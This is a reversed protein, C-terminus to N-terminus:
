QTVWKPDRAFVQLGTRAPVILPWSIRNGSEDVVDCSSLKLAVCPFSLNTNSPNIVHITQNNPTAFEISSVRSVSANRHFAESGVSSRIDLIGADSSKALFFHEIDVRQGAGVTVAPLSLGYNDWPSVARRIFARRTDGTSGGIATMRFVYLNQGATSNMQFSRSMLQDNASSTVTRGCTGGGCAAFTGMSFSSGQAAPDFYTTWGDTISPNFGGNSLLNSEVNAVFDRYVVRSVTNDTSAYQKWAAKQLIRGSSWTAFGWSAEANKQTTLITNGQVVAGNKTFFIAPDSGHFWYFAHVFDSDAPLGNSMAMSKSSVLSNNLYQNGQTLGNDSRTQLTRISAFSVNRITNGRIINFSANHMAVGIEVDSITNGQVTVGSSMDDLYVGTALNKCTLGCGELNSRSTVIVNNRVTGRAVYATQPPTPATSTWTYIGACDTFRMCSRYVTNDEIVVNPLNGFHVGVSASREIFNGRVVAGEGFVTIAGDTDDARGYGGTDSVKNGLIQINPTARGIIGRRGAAIVTSAQVTVNSADLVSIGLEHAFAAVVDSVIANPTEILRFGDQSQQEVRIREVRVNKAWRVTLGYDRWAAELGAHNAPSAGDNTWVVLEKTDNDYFWENPADVMWRKGEIIYGAGERISYPLQRDLTVIGTSPDFSQIKATELLWQTSKVHITAGVLDRGSLETLDSPRVKFSQRSSNSVAIAYESGIGKFNPYRALVQPFGDVMLRTVVTPWPRSFIPRDDGAVRSWGTQPLWDSARIVPRRDGSCDGYAGILFDGDRGNASTIELSDRWVSGCKLLLADGARLPASSAKTLTRWPADITGPNNDNGTAADVYYGIGTFQPFYGSGTSSMPASSRLTTTPPPSIWGNGYVVSAVPTATVRASVAAATAVDGGALAQASTDAQNSAGDQSSGGGGGCATLAAAAICCSILISTRTTLKM